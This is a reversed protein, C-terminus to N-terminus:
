HRCRQKRPQLRPPMAKSTPSATLSRTEQQQSATSVQHIAWLTVLLSLVWFLLLTLLSTAGSVSLTSGIRSAQSAAGDVQLQISSQIKHTIDARAPLAAALTIGLVLLTRNM